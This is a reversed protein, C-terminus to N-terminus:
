KSWASRSNWEMAAVQCFQRSLEEPPHTGPPAPNLTQPNTLEEPPHTPTKPDPTSPVAGPTPHPPTPGAM